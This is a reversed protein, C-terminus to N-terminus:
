SLKLDNQMSLSGATAFLDVEGWQTGRGDPLLDDTEKAALEKARDPSVTPGPSSSRSWWRRRASSCAVAGLSLRTSRRLSSLERHPQRSSGIPIRQIM